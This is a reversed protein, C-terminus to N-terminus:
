RIGIKVFAPKAITISAIFAGVVISIVVVTLGVRPTAIWSWVDYGTAAVAYVFFVLTEFWSARNALATTVAQSAAEERLQQLEGRIASLVVRTVAKTAKTTSKALLDVQMQELAAVADDSEKELDAQLKEGFKTRADLDTKCLERADKLVKEGIKPALEQLQKVLSRLEAIGGERFLAVITWEPADAGLGYATAIEHVRALDAADKVSALVSDYATRSM